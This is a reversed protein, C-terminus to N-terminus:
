PELCAPRSTLFPADDDMQTRGLPDYLHVINIGDFQLLTPEILDAISQTGCGGCDGLLHVVALFGHPVERIEKIVAGTTKCKLLQYEKEEDTPGEYLLNLAVEPTWQDVTRPVSVVCDEICDRRFFYVQGEVVGVTEATVPEVKPLNEVLPEKLPESKPPTQCALSLLIWM